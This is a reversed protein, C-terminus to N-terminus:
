FCFDFVYSSHSNTRAISASHTTCFCPTSVNSRWLSASSYSSLRETTATIIKILQLEEVNIRQSTTPLADLTHFHRQLLRTSWLRWSRTHATRACRGSGQRLYPEVPTQNGDFKWLRFNVSEQVKACPEVRISTLQALAKCSTRVYLRIPLSPTSFSPPYPFFSIFALLSSSPFPSNQSLSALPPGGVFINNPHLVASLM